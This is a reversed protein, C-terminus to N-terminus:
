SKKNLTELVSELEEVLEGADVDVDKLDRLLSVDQVVRPRKTDNKLMQMIDADDDAGLGFSGIEDRTGPDPDGEPAKPEPSEVAIPLPEQDESDFPAADDADLEIDDLDISELGSLDEEGFGMDSMDSLNDLESPDIDAAGAYAGDEGDMLDPFEDGMDLGALSETEQDSFDEDAPLDISDMAPLDLDDFENGGPPIGDTDPLDFAPIDAEDFAMEEDPEEGEGFLKENVESELHKLEDPTLSSLKDIKQEIRKKADFPQEEGPAEALHDFSPFDEALPDQVTRDLLNDIKKTESEKNRWNQLNASLAAAAGSISSRIGGLDPLRSAIKGGAPAAKPDQKSQSKKFAELRKRLASGKKQSSEKPGSAPADEKDEEDRKSVRVIGLLILMIFGVMITNLLVLHVPADFLVLIGGALVSVALLILRRTAPKM